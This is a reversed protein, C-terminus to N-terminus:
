DPHSADDPHSICGRFVTFCEGPIVLSLSRNKSGPRFSLHQM